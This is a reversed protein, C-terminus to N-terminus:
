IKLSFSLTSVYQKKFYSDEPHSNSKSAKHLQNHDSVICKGLSSNCSLVGVARQDRLKLFNLYKVQRMSTGRGSLPQVFLGSQVQVKCYKNRFEKYSPNHHEETITTNKRM